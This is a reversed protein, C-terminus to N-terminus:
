AAMQFTPVFQTTRDCVAQMEITRNPMDHLPSGKLAETVANFLRWVTKGGFDHDPTHWQDVVKKIRSTNLAGIRLLEIIINHARLDTLTSQKYAEFRADQNDRMAATNSVAATILNPLDRMINTTHKRGVTIEGTFALNDCVFVQSGFAIQAPFKKDLSNRVGMVLAHDESNSGNLLHILGFYRDGDKTLGHAETGFTFGVDQMREEVLDLLTDHGVPCYTRTKEPLVVNALDARDIAAAGCHLILNPTNM